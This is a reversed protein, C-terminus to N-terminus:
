LMYIFLNKVKPLFCLSIIIINFKKIHCVHGCVLLLVAIPRTEITSHKCM